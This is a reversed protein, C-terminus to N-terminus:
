AAQKQRAEIWRRVDGVTRWRMVEADTPYVGTMDEAYLPLDYARAIDDFASVPTEDPYRSIM